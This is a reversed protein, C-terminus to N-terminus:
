DLPVDSQRLTSPMALSADGKMHFCVFSLSPFAIESNVLGNITEHNFIMHMFGLFCSVVVSGIKFHEILSSTPLDSFFMDLIM